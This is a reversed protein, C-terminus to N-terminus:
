AMRAWRWLTAFSPPKGQMLLGVRFVKAAFWVVLCAAALGLAITAWVQWLPPPTPSALRALMAFTNVPPLFSLAVSLSSNPAQGIMPAMVYPAILLLMVPGM